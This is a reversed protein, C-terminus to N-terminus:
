NVVCIRGLTTALSAVINVNVSASVVQTGSTVTVTITKTGITTFNRTLTTGTGTTSDSGSWSYTYTGTGGSVTPTFVVNNNLITKTLSAALSVVLTTVYTFGNPITIPDVTGPTTIVIPAPGVVGPPTVITILTPTVSTIVAPVGGITVTTGPTFGTGPITITTGGTIPGENPTIGGTNVTINPAQTYTFGNTLSAPIAAGTVEVYVNKAGVTNVPTLCTLSTASFVMVSTAPTSGFVVSTNGAVFNTGTITVETYGSTLGTNPTVSVITPSAPIATYTFSNWATVSSAGAVTVVVDCSGVSNAPTVCTLSTASNVVVGTAAVGGFTVSTSGAVFNTGTITVSTGGTEPGSVPSIGSGDITPAPLGGVYTFGGTVTCPTAASSVNIVVDVAGAVHAPTVCTLTGGSTVNVSTAAVGGFTVSTVGSIFNTGTITVTTGGTNPGTNPSIGTSVVVPDASLIGRTYVTYSAPSGAANHSVNLIFSSSIPDVPAFWIPIHTTAGAAITYTTQDLTYLQPSVGSKTLNIVLDANGTNTIQLGYVDAVTNRYVEWAGPDSTNGSAPNSSYIPAPIPTYTFSNFTTGSLALNVTAGGWTGYGGFDIYQVYVPVVGEAHAPTLLSITNATTWKQSCAVGGFSGSLYSNMATDIGVSTLNVWVGGAASGSAPSIGTIPIPQPDIAVYIPDGQWDGYSDPGIEAVGFASGPFNNTNIAVQLTTANVITALAAYSDTFVGNLRRVRYTFQRTTGLTGFDTGTITLTQNGTMQRINRTNVGTMQALAM